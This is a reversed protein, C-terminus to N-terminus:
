TGIVRCMDVPTERIGNEPDHRNKYKNVTKVADPLQFKSNAQDSHMRYCFQFLAVAIGVILGVVLIYFIGAINNLTLEAYRFSEKAEYGCEDRDEWWKSELKSLEGSESLQAIAANIRNRLPSGLPMAVGYGKVDRHRSTYMTDCPKRQNTYDGKPSEILMGFKGNSNRVRRIGQDYTDVFVPKRANMYQWTKGYLSSQSRKFFDRTSGHSLVGYEVETQAASDENPLNLKQLTLYATFNSVYSSILIVTFFWWFAGVIRGPMTRPAIDCAQQTIAAVAFWMSNALTFPNHVFRPPPPITQQLEHAGGSGSGSLGYTVPRVHAAAAAHASFRSVVYMVIVVAIYAFGVSIWVERSMPTLFSFAGPKHKTPKKVMINLATWMFPKSFEVVKEREATITLPAIALDAEKRIIEGIMGDWGGKMDHNEVGYKNDKVIRFEYKIGIKEALLTTLDRCYGEFQDNGTLPEGSKKLMMFPEEAATVVILTGNGKHPHGLSQVREPKSIVTKFGDTDSWEAIKTITSDITMQVVHLTYNYRKGDDNFMIPGTLGEIAVKRLYRSIKDGHEWGNVWGHGANCDPGSIQSSSISSSNGNVLTRKTTSKFTDPKKWLLKNFTEVLVLVADHMLAAHASITDKGAGLSASPDLKKWESLFHKVARQNVDLVRFGTINIAGYEVVETEWHDDMILGSLLYHYTRKGLQIDKVHSVVIQKALQTPCDLIIRKKGWRDAREIQHVFNMADSVNQVRKVMEVKLSDPRLDLAEYLQQLRLLGDHSDYMYIISTWGYYRVTDLIAQHYDPRLSVAYDLMGSSPSLVQEPFWPTVFPMQFTNSYSHLTDFSDPSVSGLMSYVGRSFQNCILRSLKFADATNIVDVYAQLEFRRATNNQNHKLVAFKFATQVEDSGQEFIAGLPIKEYVSGDAGGTATAAAAFVIYYLLCRRTVRPGVM